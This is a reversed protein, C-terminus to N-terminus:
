FFFEQLVSLIGLVATLVVIAILRRRRRRIFQNKKGSRLARKRAAQRCRTDVLQGVELKRREYESDNKVM